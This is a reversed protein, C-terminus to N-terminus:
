ARAPPGRSAHALRIASEPIPDPPANAQPPTQEAALAGAIDSCSALVPPQDAAQDRHSQISPSASLQLEPTGLTLALSDRTEQLEQQLAQALPADQTALAHQLRQTLQVRSANDGMRACQLADARSLLSLRPLDCYSAFAAVLLALLAIRNYAAAQM